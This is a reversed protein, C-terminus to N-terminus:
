NRILAFVFDAIMVAAIIYSTMRVIRPEINGIIKIFFPKLVYLFFMGGIGFRISTRPCIYGNLNMWDSSYDWLRLDFIAEMAWGTIYEIISTIIVILIFVVAPAANIGFIPLNKEMVPTLTIILVLAGFGYVPLYPGILFGRNVFGWGYLIALIVEYIWGIVSFAFFLIIFVPINGIVNKDM